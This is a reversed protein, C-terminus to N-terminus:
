RELLSGGVDLATAVECGTGLLMALLQGYTLTEPGYRVLRERPREDPPWRDIGMAKGMGPREEM